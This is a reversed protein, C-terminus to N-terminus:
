ICYRMMGPYSVSTLVRVSTFNQNKYNRLQQKGRALFGELGVTWRENKLHYNVGSNVGLRYLKTSSADFYTSRSDFVPYSDIYEGTPWDELLVFEDGFTSGFSAQPGLYASFKNSIPINRVYALNLNVESEIICFGVSRYDPDTLNNIKYSVLPERDLVVNLGMKWMGKGNRTNFAYDFGVSAASVERYAYSFTYGNLDIANM